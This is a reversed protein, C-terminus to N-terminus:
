LRSSHGLATPALHLRAGYARPYLALVLMTTNMYHLKNMHMRWYDLKGLASAYIFVNLQSGRKLSLCKFMIGISISRM